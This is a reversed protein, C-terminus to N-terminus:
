HARSALHIISDIGDLAATWVTRPTINGISFYGERPERTVARYSIGQKALESVVATGVFGGAGTVLIMKKRNRSKAMWDVAVGLVDRGEYVSGVPDASVPSDAWSVIAPYNTRGAVIM